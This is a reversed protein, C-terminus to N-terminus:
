FVNYIFYCKFVVMDIVDVVFDFKVSDLLELICEDKLYEVLVILELDFNIDCFCEVLIEVKFCGVVFYFVLFQCNINSFQVIDVDVIIMCGVGVCCIMEVVYVGVGGLGVVLVYVYCLCKMKDKGLLLEM